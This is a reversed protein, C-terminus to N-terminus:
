TNSVQVIPVVHKVTWEPTLAGWGAALQRHLVVSFNPCLWDM